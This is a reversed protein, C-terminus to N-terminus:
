SWSGININDNSPALPWISMNNNASARYAGGPSASLSYQPILTGGNTVKVIGRIQFNVTYFSNTVADMVAFPGVSELTYHRVARVSNITVFGQASAQVLMNTVIRDLTVTGGWQFRFTHSATGATKFFNFNGEFAYFTNDSLTVGVGLIDQTATSNVGVIESNTVYYQMGPVLGPQTGLSTFYLNNTNAIKSLNRNNSM